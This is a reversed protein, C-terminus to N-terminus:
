ENRSVKRIDKLLIRSNYSWQITIDVGADNLNGGKRKIFETLAGDFEDLVAEPDNCDVEIEIPILYTKKM